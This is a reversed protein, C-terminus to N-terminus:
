SVHGSIGEGWVICVCLFSDECACVYNHKLRRSSKMEIARSRIPWGPRMNVPTRGMGPWRCCQDIAPSHSQYGGPMETYSLLSFKRLWVGTTQVPAHWLMRVCVYVCVEDSGGLGTDTDSSVAAKNSSKMDWCCILCSDVREASKRKSKKGNRKGKKKGALTPFLHIRSGRMGHEPRQLRCVACLFCKEM